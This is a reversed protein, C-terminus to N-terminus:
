LKAAPRLTLTHTHKKPVDYNNKRSVDAVGAAFSEELGHGVAAAGVM